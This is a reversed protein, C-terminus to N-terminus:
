RPPSGARAAPRWIARTPGIIEDARELLARALAELAANKTGSDAQALVHAAERAALCLEAVTHTRIAM